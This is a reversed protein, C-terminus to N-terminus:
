MGKSRLMSIAEEDDQHQKRATELDSELRACRDTLLELSDKFEAIRSHSGALQSILDDRENTMKALSERLQTIIHALIHPDLSAHASDGHGATPVSPSNPVSDSELQHELELSLDISSRTPKTTVPGLSESEASSEDLM